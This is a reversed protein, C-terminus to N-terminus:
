HSLYTKTRSDNRFDEKRSKWLEGEPISVWQDGSELYISKFYTAWSLNSTNLKFTDKSSSQQTYRLSYYSFENFFFGEMQNQFSEDGKFTFKVQAELVDIKALEKYNM